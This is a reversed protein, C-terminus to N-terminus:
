MTKNLYRLRIIFVIQGIAVVGIISFCVVENMYGTFILVFMVLVMLTTMVKFGAAMSANAIAINREDNEEIEERKTKKGLLDSGCIILLIGILSSGAVVLDPRSVPLIKNLGLGYTLLGGLLIIFGAILEGILIKRKM